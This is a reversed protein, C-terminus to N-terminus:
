KFFVSNESFFRKIESIQDNNSDHSLAKKNINHNQRKIEKILM